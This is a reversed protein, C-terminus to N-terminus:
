APQASECQSAKPTAPKNATCGADSAVMLPDGALSLQHHGDHEQPAM